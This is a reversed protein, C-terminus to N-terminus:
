ATEPRARPLPAAPRRGELAERDSTLASLEVDIIRGVADARSPRLRVPLYNPTFGAAYAGDTDRNEGEILVPLKRGLHKSLTDARLRAAIDHLERARERRIPEPVQDPLDAARTGPRPSYPFIHLQGLGLLEVMEVTKRWEAETEGPFGAIIDSGIQLDPVSSRAEAVLDRFRAARCRRAM